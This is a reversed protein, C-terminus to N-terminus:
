FSVAACRLSSGFWFFCSFVLTLGPVIMPWVGAAPVLALFPSVTVIRTASPELLTLTGFTTPIVWAWASVVRRWFFRESPWACGCGVSGVLSFIELWIGDAFWGTLCPVGTLM